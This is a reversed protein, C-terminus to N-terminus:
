TFRHHHYVSCHYSWSHIIATHYIPWCGRWQNILKIYDLWFVKSRMTPRKTGLRPQILLFLSSATLFLFVHGQNSTNLSVLLVSHFVVLLFGTSAAWRNLLQIPVALLTLVFKVSFSLDIASSIPISFKFTHGGVHRVSIGEHNIGSGVTSKYKISLFLPSLLRSTDIM